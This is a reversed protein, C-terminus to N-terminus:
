NLSWVKLMLKLLLFLVFFSSRWWHFSCQFNSINCSVPIIMQRILKHMSLSRLHCIQSITQFLGCKNQFAWVLKMVSVIDYFIFYQAGELVFMKLVIGGYITASSVIWVRHVSFLGSNRCIIVITALKNYKPLSDTCSATSVDATIIDPWM